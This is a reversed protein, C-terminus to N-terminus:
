ASELYLVMLLEDYYVGDVRLARKEEGYAEFGCARYLAVAPANSTVVALQIQEVGGLARVQEILTHVLRKGLGGQRHDPHVYMSILLGKHENKKGETHFFAVMGVLMDGHYAGLTFHKKGAQRQLRGTWYSEPAQVSEEYSSGFAEPSLQLALLRLAKFDAADEADLLRIIVDQAM